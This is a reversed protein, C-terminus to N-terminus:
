AKRLDRRDSAFALAEQKGSGRVEGKCVEALVEDGWDDDDVGTCDGCASICISKPVASLVCCKDPLHRLLSYVVDVHAYSPTDLISATAIAPCMSETM